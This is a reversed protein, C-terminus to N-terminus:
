RAPSHPPLRAANAIIHRFSEACQGATAALSALIEWTRAGRETRNGCSLKRAIVAPRLQREARNNTADVADHDLFTFLHDQQKRIRNAIAQELPDVGAGALLEEARRDLARRKDAFTQPSMQPKAAKLAQAARLLNRLDRLFGKGGNPHQEIAAAIAKQHHAYCKHQCATADDYINLCDSVLTGPFDAGVIDHIVDRGRSPRVCYLTGGAHAFVWLWWKPGGVWWSTEDAYVAPACRVGAVIAEYARQVKKAMRHAAQVLGGPTISLGFSRALIDCTKRRPVGHQQTLELALGLANPGLHTGAAGTATSVQLPHTSRVEGCRACEGCYTRLHTVRPRIPPIDEIFQEVATVGTLTDGCHPCATLPVDIEEDVHEPRARYAGPHGKARGPRKRRKKRKKEDVRFPAAQRHATREVEELRRKLDDNEKKLRRIEERLQEILRAQQVIIEILRDPDNRLGNLLTKSPPENLM